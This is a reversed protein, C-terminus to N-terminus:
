SKQGALWRKGADTEIIRRTGIKRSPPGKNQRWLKYLMAVSLGTAAAFERPSLGIRDIAAGKTAALRTKTNSM